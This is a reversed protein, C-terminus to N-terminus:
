DTERICRSCRVAAPPEGAMGAGCRSCFGVEALDAGDYADDLSNM